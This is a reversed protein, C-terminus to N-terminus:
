MAPWCIAAMQLSHRVDDDVIMPGVVKESILVALGMIRTPYALCGHREMFEGRAAQQWQGLGLVVASPTIGLSRAQALQADIQEIILM